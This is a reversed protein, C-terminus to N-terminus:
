STNEGGKKGVVKMNRNTEEERSIWNMIDDTTTISTKYNNENCSNRKINVRGDRWVCSALTLVFPTIVSGSVFLVLSHRVQNRRKHRPILQKKGM